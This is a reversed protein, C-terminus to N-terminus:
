INTLYDDFVDGYFRGLTNDYVGHMIFKGRYVLSNNTCSQPRPSDSRSLRKEARSPATEGASLMSVLANRRNSSSYELTYYIVLFMKSGIYIGPEGQSLSLTYLAIFM